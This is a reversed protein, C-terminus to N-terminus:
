AATEVSRIRDLLWFYYGRATSFVNSLQQDNQNCKVITLRHKKLREVIYPLWAAGTGGAVLLYKHTSLGQYSTMLSDFVENCVEKCAKELYTAIEIDKYEGRIYDFCEIKGTSLAKRFEVITTKVGQDIDIAKIARSFVEHMGLELSDSEADLPVSKNFGNFDTTLFGPDLVLTHQSMYDDGLPVDNGNVDKCASYLAGQPQTIIFLQDPTIEFNFHVYDNEGVKLDFDYQGQIGARLLRAHGMKLYKTPLGTQVMIKEDLRQREDNSLLALGMAVSFYIKFEKDLYRNEKATKKTDLTKPSRPDELDYAFDGVAWDGEKDRYVIDTSRVGAARNDADGRPIKYVYSSISFAKNPSFGKIGGYGIDVGCLWYGEVTPYAHNFIRDRTRFKDTQM